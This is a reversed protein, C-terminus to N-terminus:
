PDLRAYADTIGHASEHHTRWGAVGASWEMKNTMSSAWQAMTSM